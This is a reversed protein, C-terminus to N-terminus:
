GRDRRSCIGVFLIFVIGIGVLIVVCRLRSVRDACRRAKVRARHSTPHPFKVGASAQLLCTLPQRDLSQPPVGDLAKVQGPWGSPPTKRATRCVCNAFILRASEAPGKAMPGVRVPMKRLLRDVKSLHFSNNEVHQWVFAANSGSKSEQGRM